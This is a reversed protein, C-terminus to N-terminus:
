DVRAVYQLEDPPRSSRSTSCTRRGGPLASNRILHGRGIVPVAQGGYTTTTRDPWAESFGVGDIATVIDIRNPPVGIQFITGPRELDAASLEHLPAGFFRLAELVRTSNAAEASPRRSGRGSNETSLCMATACAGSM